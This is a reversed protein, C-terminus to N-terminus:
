TASGRPRIVARVLGDDALLSKLRANDGSLALAMVSGDSGLPGREVLELLLLRM